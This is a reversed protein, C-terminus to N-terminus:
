PRSSAKVRRVPQGTAVRILSSNGPRLIHIAIISIHRVLCNLVEDSCCAAPFSFVAVLMEILNGM